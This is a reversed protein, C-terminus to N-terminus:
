ILMTIIYPRSSSREGNQVLREMNLEIQQKKVQTCSEWFAPLTTQGEWWKLFKGCNTTIWVTLPKLMTLSVSTPTKQFERAKEMIRHSNVTQERTGRGRQFGAQVDPLERNVFLHVRSQLIKLIFKSAHSILLITCYNSCKKVTVEKPNSHFSIKDLGTSM